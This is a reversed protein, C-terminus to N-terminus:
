DNGLRDHQAMISSYGGDGMPLGHGGGIGEKAGIGIEGLGRGRHESDVVAAADDEVAGHEVGGTAALGAVGALEGCLGTIDGDGSGDIAFVAALDDV